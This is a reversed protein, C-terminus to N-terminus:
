NLSKSKMLLLRSALDLFATAEEMDLDQMAEVHKLYQDTIDAVKFTKIDLGKEDIVQLVLDLPIELGEFSFKMYSSVDVKEETNEM